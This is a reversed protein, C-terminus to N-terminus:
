THTDYSQAIVIVQDNLFVFFFFNRLVDIVTFFIDHKHILTKLNVSHQHSILPDVGVIGGM